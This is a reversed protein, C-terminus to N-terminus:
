QCHETIHYLSDQQVLVPKPIKILVIYRGLCLTFTLALSQLNYTYTPFFTSHRDLQIRKEPETPLLTLFRIQKKHNRSSHHLYVCLLHRAMQPLLIYHFHTAACAYLTAIAVSYSSISFFSTCKGKNKCLYM